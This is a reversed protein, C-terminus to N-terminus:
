PMSRKMASRPRRAPPIAISRIDLAHVQEALDRLGDRIYELRSPHRWHKKTPFNIIYRPSALRCVVHM